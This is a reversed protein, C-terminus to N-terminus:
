SSRGRRARQTLSFSLNIALIFAFLVAATAILADRHLDAAYGMELVINTTLTRVGSLLGSPLVAQNGVVMVVAMTEGLARGTGLIMGARVGSSAAPLMVRFVTREHSAGLAASAAYLTAPVARLAAETLAAVTPMIMIALVVAATLMSKGSGGWHRVYPAIVMLGFFGYVVSPIGAMLDTLARMCFQARKPCFFVLFVAYWVGLPTGLLLAGATVGCSGVIMPFIGFLGNLPKWHLGGLFEGWGIAHLAPLGGAFIFLCILTVAGVCVLAATLFVGHMVLERPPTGADRRRSPRRPAFRALRSM